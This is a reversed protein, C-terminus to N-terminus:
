FGAKPSFLADALGTGTISELLLLSSGFLIKMGLRGRM